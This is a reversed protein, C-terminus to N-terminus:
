PEAGPRCGSWRRQDSPLMPLLETRWRNPVNQFLRWTDDRHNSFHWWSYSVRDTGSGSYFAIRGPIQLQVCLARDLGRDLFEQPDDEKRKFFDDPLLLVVDLAFSLSREVFEFALHFPPNSAILDAGGVFSLQEEFAADAFDAVIFHDANREAFERERERVDVAATRVGPWVERAVKCFPAPGSGPEIMTRVSPLGARDRITTLMQRVIPLPSGGYGADRLEPRSLGDDVLSLQPDPTM